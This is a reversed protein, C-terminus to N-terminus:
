KEGKQYCGHGIEIVKYVSHDHEYYNDASIPESEFEQNFYVLVIETESMKIVVPNYEDAIKVYEVEDNLYMHLTDIAEAETETPIAIYETDFSYTILMVYKM